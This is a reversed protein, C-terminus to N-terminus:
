IELLIKQGGPPSSCLLDHDGSVMDELTVTEEEDDGYNNMLMREYAKQGIASRWDTGPSGLPM